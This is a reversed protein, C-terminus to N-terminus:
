DAPPTPVPLEDAAKLADRLTLGLDGTSELDSWTDGDANYRAVYWQAAEIEPWDGLGSDGDTIMLYGGDDLPREWAMCGGGTHEATYGHASMLALMRHDVQAYRGWQWNYVADVMVPLAGGHKELWRGAEDYGRVALVMLWQKPADGALRDVASCYGACFDLAADDLQAQTLETKRPELRERCDTLMARILESPTLKKPTEDM